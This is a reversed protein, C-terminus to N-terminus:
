ARRYDGDSFVQWQEGDGSIEMQYRVRDPESFDWTARTHGGGVSTQLSLVQGEFTGRFVSPQQGMSDFWHLQYESAAADYRFVGHGQFNVEGNRRQVYDQVVVFGDLALRNEVRGKAPGGAPDWPSPHIQEEAIWSGVLAELKQHAAGPRPMDM